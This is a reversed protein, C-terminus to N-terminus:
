KLVLRLLSNLNLNYRIFIAPIADLESDVSGFLIALTPNFNNEKAKIIEQELDQIINVEFSVSEM